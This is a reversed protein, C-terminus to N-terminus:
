TEDEPTPPAVLVSWRGDNAIAGATSGMGIRGLLRRRQSGLAIVDPKVKECFRLLEGSTDASAVVASSLVVGGDGTLEDCLQAFVARIGESRIRRQVELSESASGPVKTEVFIMHIEGGDAVLRRAMMAARKSASSFDMAVVIRKPLGSLSDRVGLVPITSRAMVQRATDRGMARGLAAHRNLGMVILDAGLSVADAAVIAAVDGVEISFPWAAREGVDLGLVERMKAEQVVRTQPERLAAELTVAVMAAEPISVGIEIVYVVNPTANKHHVLAQAVDSAAPARQDDTLAVLLGFRSGLRFTAPDISSSLDGSLTGLISM